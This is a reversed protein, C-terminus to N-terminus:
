HPLFSSKTAAFRQPDICLCFSCFHSDSDLVSYRRTPKVTASRWAGCTDRACPHDKRTNSGRPELGSDNGCGNRMTMWTRREKLEGREDEVEIQGEGDEEKGEVEQVELLVSLEVVQDGHM